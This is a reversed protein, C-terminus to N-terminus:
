FQQQATDLHVTNLFGAERQEVGWNKWDEYLHSTMMLRKHLARLEDADGVYSM